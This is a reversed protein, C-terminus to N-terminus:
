KTHRNLEIQRELIQLYDKLMHPQKSATKTRESVTRLTGPDKERPTRGMWGDQIVVHCCLSLFWDASVCGPPEVADVFMTKVM